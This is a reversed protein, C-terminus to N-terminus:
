KLDNISPIRQDYTDLLLLIDSPNDSLCALFLNDTLAFTLSTGRAIDPTEYKWIPWVAHKGMFSLGEARSHELKWRLWPSRWGVWSATAWARPHGATRLPIAAIAVESPATLKIWESSYLLAKVSNGAGLAKDLESCVPSKYLADLSEAKFSFTAQAPIADYVAGSIFPQFFAYGLATVLYVLSLGIM